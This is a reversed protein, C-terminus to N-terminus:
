PLVVKGSPLILKDNWIQFVNWWFTGDPTMNLVMFGWTWNNEAGKLYHPNKTSMCPLSIVQHTNGRVNFSRVDFNHIHGFVVSRGGSLEFHKRHATNANHAQGHTFALHPGYDLWDNYPYLNIGRKDINLDKKYDFLYHSHYPLSHLASDWRYEHNGLLYDKREFYEDTRDFFENLWVMEKQYEPYFYEDVGDKRAIWTQYLENRAMFFDVDALDGNIILDCNKKHFSAVKFFIDLAPKHSYLAHVDSIVFTTRIGELPLPATHVKGM